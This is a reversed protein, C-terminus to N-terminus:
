MNDIKINRAAFPFPVHCTKEQQRLCVRCKIKWWTVLNLMELSISTADLLIVTRPTKSEEDFRCFVVSERSSEASEM